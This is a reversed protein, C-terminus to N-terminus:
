LTVLLFILSQLVHLIELRLGVSLFRILVVFFHLLHPLSIFLSNRILPSSSQAMKLDVIIQERVVLIVNFSVIREVQVVHHSNTLTSEVLALQFLYHKFYNLEIHGILAVMGLELVKFTIFDISSEM